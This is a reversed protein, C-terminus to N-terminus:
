DSGEVLKLYLNFYNEYMLEKSYVKIAEKSIKDGYEKKKNLWRRLTCELAIIDGQNVFESYEKLSITEPAGAEFGVVPTGCALSEACIMSFTENVSTLLTIDAMSYFAALETQKKTNQVPIINSPLINKGGNFGVIIIKINNNKLREALKIVYEGGKIPNTFSATVHLIVKENTINYKERLETSDTPRFVNETDIGNLVVKMNKDTFFPSKKARDYLWKSVSTIVVNDFGEFAKKMLQWEEASRDFINSSPRGAGKQPCSGCGTKWKDCDLANGCGATHMFEAHLTLVTPINNYKLFGLLKYINVMYGNICHLHVVDPKERNIIHILKQTSFLCGTYAYGTLKSRLSQMKMVFEPAIKYVNKELVKAGRGYCVISEHGSNILQTHIDHVIKGTSGNKYVVNIQMIKM